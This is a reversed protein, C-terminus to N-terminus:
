RIVKLTCVTRGEQDAINEVRLDQVTVLYSAALPTGYGDIFTTVVKRRWHDFLHDAKTSGLSQDNAFRFSSDMDETLLVLDFYEEDQASTAWATIAKLTPTSVGDSTTLTARMQLTEFSVDSIYFTQTSGSSQTGALTWTGNQDIQYELRATTSAPMNDTLIQIKALTKRTSPLGFDFVSTTFSSGDTASSQRYTGVSGTVFIESTFGAFIRGLAVAIARQNGPTQADLQYELFLGGNVLSYRWIYNGQLIFVDTQYPVLFVPPRPDPNDRRMFGIRQTYGNQDIAFMVARPLKDTDSATSDGYYQAGVFTIGSEYAISTAKVGHGLDALERTVLAGTSSDSEYIKATVDGYNVFFRAGTPSSCMRQRLSTDPTKVSTSISDSLVTAAVTIDGTATELPAAYVKTGASGESLVFLREQAVAIGVGAPITTLALTDAGAATWYVVENSSLLAYEAADSHAMALTTLNTGTASDLGSGDSGDTWTDTASDYKFQRSDLASAHAAAWIIPTFVGSSQTGLGLDLCDITWAAATLTTIVVKDLWIAQTGSTRKLRARYDTAAVGLFSISGVNSGAATPTVSVTKTTLSVGGTQNWIEITATNSTVEAGYLVKDFTVTGGSGGTRSVYVRYNKGAAPTFVLSTFPTASSTSVTLTSSAVIGGGGAIIQFLLPATGSAISAYLDVRTPVGATLESGSALLASRVGDGSGFLYDTGSLTPSGAGYTVFASAQITTAYSTFADYYLYFDAQVNVAGPTVSASMGVKDAVTVLKRDTGSTTSTGTLDTFDANGQKTAASSTTSITESLISKNLKAQGATRFDLGESRYFLFASDEDAPDLVVQGEGDWRTQSWVLYDEKLNQSGPKGTIDTRSAFINRGGHVYCRRGTKEEYSEDLLYEVDGISVHAGSPLSM